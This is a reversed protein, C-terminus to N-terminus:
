LSSTNAWCFAGERVGVLDLGGQFYLQLCAIQAPDCDIVKQELDRMAQAALKQDGDAIQVILAKATELDDGELGSRGNTIYTRLLPRLRASVLRRELPISM